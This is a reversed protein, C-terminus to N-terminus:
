QVKDAGIIVIFDSTGAKEAEPLNVVEGGTLTKLAELTAPLPKESVQIILTKTYTKEKANTPDVMTLGAAKLADSQTKAVGVKSTGNWVQVTAHESAVTPVIEETSTAQPTSIPLVALVIDGSVSYLVAKDSWILVRDGNKADKYFDPQQQRLADADGVTAVTPTEGEKVLILRSVKKLLAEPDLANADVQATPRTNVAPAGTKKTKLYIMTGVLLVIVVIVIPLVKSIWSPGQVPPPVASVSPNTPVRTPRPM